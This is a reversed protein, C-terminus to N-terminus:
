SNDGPKDDSAAAKLTLVRRYLENRGQGTAAAVIGAAQRAPLVATLETLLRDIDIQSDAPPAEAAGETVVVFEGKLPIRGDGTMAALADLDASVCQEHLKTLERGLFARRKGGFSRALEQLTAVVRHVSEFLVVSRTENALVRLRENRASKRTPLFGEFVFRDTSLGCVSLAALAASAGPVPSVRIGAVRAARVLRYGPDSVLPTGADSVLAVSRGEQLSRILRPVQRTENHEHLAMQRGNIGFHSLLRGTVRTDEAAITDVASLVERARPSLDNLNGIPTAVVFLTGETL